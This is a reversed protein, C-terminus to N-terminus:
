TAIWGRPNEIISQVFGELYIKLEEYKNPFSMKVDYSEDVDINLDFLYSHVKMKKENEAAKYYKFNDRSRVAFGEDYALSSNIYVLHEHPSEANKGIIMQLISKGDIVRDSPLDVGALECFTPFFDINMTQSSIDQKPVKGRWYCITPVIQGGDFCNTKRGRHMGTSGQHWPGNDSSFVILTNDLIGEDDLLKMLDGVGADFEQICDGYTGAKSTGKFAEGCHLPHHPWPSAYYAFFPQDRYKLIYQQLETNLFETIKRQDFPAEVAIENNHWFHYPYMDNSYHAGYFYEFGKDTPLHPSKDGLHWKGFIATRYGRARLTEAITIEDPLIGETPLSASISRYRDLAQEIFVSSLKGDNEEEAIEYGSPTVTKRPVDVTPFYVREVFGRSPYRGTLFGFRSPSCVPSSAYCNRLVTGERAMIDLNPTSIAASGFCSIDGWGMDDMMIFIINPANKKEASSMPLISDLYMQHKQLRVSSRVKERLLDDMERQITLKEKPLGEQDKIKM